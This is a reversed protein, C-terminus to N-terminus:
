RGNAPSTSARSGRPHRADSNRGRPRSATITRTTQCTRRSSLTPPRDEIAHHLVWRRMIQATVRRQKPLQNSAGEDESAHKILSPFSRPAAPQPCDGDCEDADIGAAADAPPDQVGAEKQFLIDLNSATWSDPQDLKQALGVWIEPAGPQALWVVFRAPSHYFAAIGSTCM